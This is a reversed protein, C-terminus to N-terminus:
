QFLYVSVNVGFHGQVEEQLQRKLDDLLGRTWLEYKSLGKFIKDTGIDTTLLFISNDLRVNVKKKEDQLTEDRSRHLLTDLFGNRAMYFGASKSDDDLYFSVMPKSLLRVLEQKAFVSLHEVHRLIVIAGTDKQRYVHELIHQILSKALTVDGDNDLAYDIGRLELIKGPHHNDGSLLLCSPNPCDFLEEKRIWDGQCANVLLEAVQKALEYKGVGDSGTFMLNLPRKRQHHANKM